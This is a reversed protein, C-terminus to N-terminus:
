LEYTKSFDLLAMVFRQQDRFGDSVAQAVLIIQYELGRGKRFGEQQGLIWDNIECISYMRASTMRELLKGVCSTLSM